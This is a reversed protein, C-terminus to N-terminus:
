KTLRLKGDETATLVGHQIVEHDDGSIGHGTASDTKRLTLKSSVDMAYALLFAIKGGLWVNVPSGLPAGLAAQRRRTGLLVFQSFSGALTEDIGDGDLDKGLVCRVEEGTNFEIRKQGTSSFCYFHGNGSGALVSRKGDADVATDIAWCIPGFNAAWKRKGTHDVVSMSYYHTGCIVEAKGDGDLDVVAGSRSPHVSEYHWLCNGKRDFAYFRWNEAGCVIEPWGDGDLDGIRILNGDPPRRYFEMQYRWIEDGNEKLLIVEGSKMALAIEDIGDKDIDVAAIDNVASIMQKTWLTKGDPGSCDIRWHRRWRSSMRAALVGAPRLLPFRYGLRMKLKSAAALVVVESLYISSGSRPRLRMRLGKASKGDLDVRYEVPAGIRCNAIRSMHIFPRVDAAFGDDSLEIEVKDLM